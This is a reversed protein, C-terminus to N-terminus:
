EEQHNIHTTPLQARHRIPYTSQEWNLGARLALTLCRQALSQRPDYLTHVYGFYTPSPKEYPRTATGAWKKPHCQAM